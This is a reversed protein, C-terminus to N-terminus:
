FLVTTKSFTHYGALGDSIQIVVFLRGRYNLLAGKSKADVFYCESVAEAGQGGGGNCHTEHGNAAGFSKLSAVSAAKLAGAMQQNWYGERQSFNSCGATIAAAILLLMLCNRRCTETM